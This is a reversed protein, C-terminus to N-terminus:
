RNAGALSAGVQKKAGAAFRSASAIGEREPFPNGWVEDAEPASTSASRRPPRHGCCPGEGTSTSPASGPDDQSWEM